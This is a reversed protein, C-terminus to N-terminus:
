SKIKKMTIISLAFFTVIFPSFPSTKSNSPKTTNTPTVLYIEIMGSDPGVGLDIRNPAYLWYGILVGTTANILLKESYTSVLSTRNEIMTRTNLDYSFRYFMNNITTNDNTLVYQIWESEVNPTPIIWVWFNTLNIESGKNLETHYEDVITEFHGFIGSNNIENIFLSVDPSPNTLNGLLGWSSSLNGALLAYKLQQNKEVNIKLNQTNGPSTIVQCIPILILFSITFAKLKM